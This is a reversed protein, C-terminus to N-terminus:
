RMNRPRGRILMYDEKIHKFYLKAEEETALHIEFPHYSPLKALEEIKIKKETRQRARGPVSSSIILIDVDSGGVAEGRAVSGFVYVSADPFVRCAAEAIREVYGRWRRVMEAREYLIDYFWDM